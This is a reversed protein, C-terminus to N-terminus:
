KRGDAEEALVAETVLPILFSTVVMESDSRLAHMVGSPVIFAKGVALEQESDEFVGYGNGAVCYFVEDFKDHKHLPVKKNFDIYYVNTFIKEKIAERDLDAYQLNEGSFNKAGM